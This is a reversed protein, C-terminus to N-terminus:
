NEVGLSLWIGAIGGNFTKDLKYAYDSFCVDDDDDAHQAIKLEM